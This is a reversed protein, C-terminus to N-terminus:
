LFELGSGPPQITPIGEIGDPLRYLLKARNERGSNIHVAEPATLLAGLDIGREALWTNAARYDDVDIVATRPRSYSHALGINGTLKAAREPDFVCNERKNWGKAIPGKKGAPIPVLVLGAECYQSSLPASKAGGEIEAMLPAFNVM